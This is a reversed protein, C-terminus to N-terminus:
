HAQLHLGFLLITPRHSLWSPHFWRAHYPYWCSLRSGLDFSAENLVSFLCKNKNLHLGRPPGATGIIELASFLSAPPGCLCGDDLYWANLRLDPVSSQIQEILPHLTLAFCLPGLPDGQQVGHLAASSNSIM